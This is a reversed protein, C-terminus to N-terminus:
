RPLVGPLRVERHLTRGDRLTADILLFWDGAMSLEVAAEYRGPAVERATSLVPKMGPHSMNGEIRVTAGAAPQRSATDTLTLSLTAPGTRPPSPAVAWDLSIEPAIEAPPHCGASITLCVTLGLGLLRLRHSGRASPLRLLM